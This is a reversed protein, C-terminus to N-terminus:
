MPKIELFAPKRLRVWFAASFVALLVTENAQGWLISRIPWAVDNPALAATAVQYLFPQFCHHNQRDLVLM